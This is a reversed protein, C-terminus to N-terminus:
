PTRSPSPTPTRPTVTTTPTPVTIRPKPLEPDGSCRGPLPRRLLEACLFTLTVDSAPVRIAQGPLAAVLVVSGDHQGLYTFNQPLAPDLLYPRKEPDGIWDVEVPEARLDLMTFGLRSVPEAKSGAYAQLSRLDIETTLIRKNLHISYLLAVISLLIAVAWPM